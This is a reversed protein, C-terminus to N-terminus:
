MFPKMVAILNSIDQSPILFWVSRLPWQTKREIEKFQIQIINMYDGASVSNKVCGLNGIFVKILSYVMNCRIAIHRAKESSWLTYEGM